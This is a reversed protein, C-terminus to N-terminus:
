QVSADSSSKRVHRKKHKWFEDKQRRVKVGMKSKVMGLLARWDKNKRAAKAELIALLTQYTSGDMMQRNKVMHKHFFLARNFDHVRVFAFIMTSYTVSDPQLRLVAMEKFLQPLKSHQGGKAYANMLMNYTVVTPQMGFNGFEYIIDRAEMYLGQKAFGDVLINFTTQTAKVKESKMLKWIEMLTQAEGARRLVDLLTNYTEISPKIGEMKMNEFAMYAKEHLGNVSYAHILATYSHSTPKIGAEKMRLFADTAALDSLTKQKGYASILCTYSEANPKLGVDQMEALLKEVIKPQMRISYAHMLINFTAIIPKIGKAKMEVFLGEVAEVHNSKCYAEMMTNYVNVNSSVGKKEMETQIVLAVRLLGEACFSKILAGLVEESWRVGKRNMKEFFQWADKASHGLERMVTIMISCTVHDPHINETEMSEYVKWADEYRGGYLLGSITANYVYVDRFEKSSSLNRFFDMLEDGMGGKGLLPFLVACAKPTVLSPEQLRMWQFFCVCCVLLHEEGLIELVEWCEKDNVRGEYRVLAKELTLNQPLNRALQIIEGVVGKAEPLERKQCCGMEENGLSMEPEEDLHWSTLPNEEIYLKEEDQPDQFSVWADTDSFNYNPDDPDHGEEDEIDEEEEEHFYPLSIPTTSSHPANSPSACLWLSSLSTKSQLLFFPKSLTQTFLSTSTHLCFISSFSSFPKHHILNLTM